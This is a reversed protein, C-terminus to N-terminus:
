NDDATLDEFCELGLGTFYTVEVERGMRRLRSVVAQCHSLSDDLLHMQQWKGSRFIRIACTVYAGTPACRDTVEIM